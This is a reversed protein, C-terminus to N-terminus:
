THSDPLELKHKVDCDPLKERLQKIRQLEKYIWEKRDKTTELRVSDKEMTQVFDNVYKACADPLSFSPSSYLIFVTFFYIVFIKM